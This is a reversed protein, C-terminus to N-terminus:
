PLDPWFLDRTLSVVSIEKKIGAEYKEAQGLQRMEQIFEEREKIESVVALFNILLLWFFTCNWNRQEFRVNELSKVPEAKPLPKLKQKGVVLLSWGFDFNSALVIKSIFLGIKSIRKPIGEM